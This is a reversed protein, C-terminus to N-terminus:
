IHLVPQRLINLNQNSEEFTLFVNIDDPLLYICHYGSL